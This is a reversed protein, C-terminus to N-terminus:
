TLWKARDCKKTADLTLRWEKEPQIIVAVLRRLERETARLRM